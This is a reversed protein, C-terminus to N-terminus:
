ESSLEHLTREAHAHCLAPQWHVLWQEPVTGGHEAYLTVSQAFTAPQATLTDGQGPGMRTPRVALNAARTWSRTQSWDTRLPREFRQHRLDRIRVQPVPNPQKL